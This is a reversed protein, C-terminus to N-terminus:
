VEAHALEMFVQESKEGGAAKVLSDAEIMLAQNENASGQMLGVNMSHLIYERAARAFDQLIRKRRHYNKQKRASTFFADAAGAAATAKIRTANAEKNASQAAAEFEQRSFQFRGSAEKMAVAKAYYKENEQLMGAAIHLEHAAKVQARLTEAVKEPEKGSNLFVTFVSSAEEVTAEYKAKLEDQVKQLEEIRGTFRELPLQAEGDYGYMRVHQFQPTFHILEIGRGIAFGKWFMMGDRQFMYETNTELEIGHMEIREYGKLIALAIAYPMSSTFTDANGNQEEWVWRYSGLMDIVDDLPYEVCGPIDPYNEKMYVTVGDRLSPKYTGTGDCADCEKGLAKGTGKCRNCPASEDHLWHIHNPDNRNNPNSWIEETHLQFIADARQFWPKNLAENFAWIDCDKREFSFTVESRPHSGVIAVTKKL